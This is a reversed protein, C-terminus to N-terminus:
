KGVLRRPRQIGLGAQIHQVGQAAEIFLALAHDHHGVVHARGPPAVADQVQLVAADQPLAIQASIYGAVPRPM